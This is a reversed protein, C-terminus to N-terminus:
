FGCIGLIVVSPMVETDEITDQRKVNGIHRFSLYVDHLGRETIVPPTRQHVRFAQGDKERHHGSLQM